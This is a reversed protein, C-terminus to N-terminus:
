KYWNYKIMTMAYKYQSLNKNQKKKPNKNHFNHHFTLTSSPILCINTKLENKWTNQYLHLAHITKEFAKISGM